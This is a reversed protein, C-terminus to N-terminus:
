VARCFDIVDYSEPHCSCIILRVEKMFNSGAERLHKAYLMSKRAQVSSSTHYIYCEEEPLLIIIIIILAIIILYTNLPVSVLWYDRGGFQTHMVNELREIM